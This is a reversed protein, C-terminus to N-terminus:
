RKEGPDHDTVLVRYRLTLKEGAKMDMTKDFLFAANFFPMDQHGYWPTPHRVNAADDFITVAAKDSGASFKIWDSHLGQVTKPGTMGESNSFTWPRTAPPLRLTLGAYGGLVSTGPKGSPPTRTLSASAVATFDSTWRMDYSGDKPASIEITRKETMVAAGGRPHYTIDLILVASGDDHPQFDRATVDTVGESSHTRADEEWYNRGNIYKWSWWLGCHWPHDKPRLETLVTGGPTALPHFYPKGLKPDAVYKWITTKGDMLALSYETKEWTYAHATLPLYVAAIWAAVSLTKNIKM